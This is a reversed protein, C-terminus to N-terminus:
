CLTPFAACTLSTMCAKTPRVMLVLRQGPQVGWALLGNAIATAEHELQAFTWTRYRYKGTSDRGIPQVVAIQEPWRAASETLRDAINLSETM